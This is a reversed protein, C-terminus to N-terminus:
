QHNDICQAHIGEPLFYPLHKQFESAQIGTASVPNWGSLHYKNWSNYMNTMLSPHTHLTCRINNNNDYIGSYLIASFLIWAGKQSAPLLTVLKSSLTKTRLGWDVSKIKTSKVWRMRNRTTLNITHQHLALVKQHKLSALGGEFLTAGGRSVRYTGDRPLRGM